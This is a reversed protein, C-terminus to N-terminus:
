FCSVGGIIWWLRVLEAGIFIFSVEVFLRPQRILQLDLSLKPIVHFFASITNSAVDPLPGNSNWLNYGALGWTFCLSSSLHYCDDFVMVILNFISGPIDFQVLNLIATPFAIKGSSCLWAFFLHQLDYLDFQSHPTTGLLRHRIGRYDVGKSM